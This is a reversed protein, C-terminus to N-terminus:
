FDHMGESKINLALITACTFILFFKTYENGVPLSVLWSELYRISYLQDKTVWRPHVLVDLGRCPLGMTVDVDGLTVDVVISSALRIRHYQVDYAFILWQCLEYRIEKTALQLLGDFGMAKIAVVKDVLLGRVVVLFKM